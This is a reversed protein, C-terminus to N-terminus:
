CLRERGYGTDIEYTLIRTYALIPDNHLNQYKSFQLVMEEATHVALIDDHNKLRFIVLDEEEIAIWVYIHLRHNIDNVTMASFAQYTPTDAQHDHIVHHIHEMDAAAGLYVLIYKLKCLQNARTIQEFQEKASLGAM